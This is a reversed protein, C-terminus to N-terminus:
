VQAEVQLIWASRPQWATSRGAEERRELDCCPGPGAKGFRIEGEVQAM